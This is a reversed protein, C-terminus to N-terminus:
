KNFGMILEKLLIYGVGTFSMSNDEAGYNYQFRLRVEENKLTLNFNTFSSFGIIHNKLIGVVEKFAINDEESWKTRDPTDYGKQQYTLLPHKRQINLIQNYQEESILEIKM